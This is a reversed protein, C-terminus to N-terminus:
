PDDAHPHPALRRRQIQIVLHVLPPPNTEAAAGHPRHPTSTAEAGSCRVRPMSPGGAAHAVATALLRAYLQDAPLTAPKAARERPLVGGDPVATV